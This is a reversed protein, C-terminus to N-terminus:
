RPYNSGHHINDRGLGLGTERVCTLLLRVYVQWSKWRAGTQPECAISTTKRVGTPPINSCFRAKSWVHVGVHPVSPCQCTRSENRTVSPVCCVRRKAYVCVDNENRRGQNQDENGSVGVFHARM